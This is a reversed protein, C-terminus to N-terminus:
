KLGTSLWREEVSWGGSGNTVALRRIGTGEGGSILLDGDATMAPQVIRVDSAWTKKWLEKGDAPAVSVVGQDCLLLIQDVELITMLHATSYGGEDPPGTWPTAGTAICFRA